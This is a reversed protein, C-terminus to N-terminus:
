VNQVEAIYRTQWGPTAQGNQYHKDFVIQAAMDSRLTALVAPALRPQVMRYISGQQIFYDRKQTGKAIRQIQSDALEFEKSYCRYLSESTANQNPLFIRNPINDRIAAFIGSQVFDELSQTDFWVAACRKALTKLWDNLKDRFVPKQVLNWIEPIYIVTPRVVGAARQEVLKEDIRSFCYDMTPLAAQPHSLLKGVEIGMLNGLHFGDERNDFYKALARDGVWAELESRLRPNGIQSYVASLTRLSPDGLQITGRLANELDRSDDASLSYDRQALLLEVWAM